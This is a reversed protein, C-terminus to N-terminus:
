NNNLELQALRAEKSKPYQRILKYLTRQQYSNLNMIQYIEAKQLLSDPRFPSLLYKNEVHSFAKLAFAYQKLSKLNLARYYYVQDLFKNQSYQQIFLDTATLSKKYNTKTYEERIFGLMSEPKQPIEFELDEPNIVPRTNKVRQSNKKSKVRAKSKQLALNKAKLVKIQHEKSKLEDTLELLQSQYNELSSKNKFSTCSILLPLLIVIYIYTSKM